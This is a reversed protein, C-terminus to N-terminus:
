VEGEFVYGCEKAVERVAEPFAVEPHLYRYFQFVDGGTKGMNGSGGSYDKWINKEPLVYFSPTKESRVPSLGKYNGKGAPSLNVYRGIYEVIDIKEKLKQIDSVVEM